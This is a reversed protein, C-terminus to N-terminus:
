RMKRYDPSYRLYGLLERIRILTTDAYKLEIGTQWCRWEAPGALVSSLVADQQVQRSPPSVSVSQCLSVPCCRTRSYRVPPPSVSVPQFVSVSYLVVRHEISLQCCTVPAPLM